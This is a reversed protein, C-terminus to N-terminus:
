KRRRKTSKKKKKKKTSKKRKKSRKRKGARNEFIKQDILWQTDFNNPGDLPSGPSGPLRSKAYALRQESKYLEFEEMESKFREKDKDNMKQFKAKMAPRMNIWESHVWKKAAKAMERPLPRYALMPFQKELFPMRERSYFMFASTPKVPPDAKSGIIDAIDDAYKDSNRSPKKASM